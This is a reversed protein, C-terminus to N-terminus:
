EDEKRGLSSNDSAYPCIGGNEDIEIEHRVGSEIYPYIKKCQDCQYGLLNHWKGYEWRIIAM